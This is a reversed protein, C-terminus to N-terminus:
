IKNFHGKLLVLILVTNNIKKLLNEQILFTDKLDFAFFVRFIYIFSKLFFAPIYAPISNTLSLTVTESPLLQRVVVEWFLIM